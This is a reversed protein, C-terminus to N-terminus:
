NSGAAILARLESGLERINQDTLIARDVLLVVVIGRDETVRVRKWGEDELERRPSGGPRRRARAAMPAEGSCSRLETAPLPSGELTRVMWEEIRCEADGPPRLIALPAPQAEGGDEAVDPRRM